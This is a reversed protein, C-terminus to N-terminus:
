ARILDKKPPFFAVLGAAIAVLCDIGGIVFLVITARQMSPGNNSYASAAHFLALGLLLVIIAVGGLRHNHAKRRKESIAVIAFILAAILQLGINVWFAPVARESFAIYAKVSPIVVFAVLLAIILLLFACILLIQKSTKYHIIM